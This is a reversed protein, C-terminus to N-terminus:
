LIRRRSITTVVAHSAAAATATTAKVQLYTGAAIVIGNGSAAIYAYGSSDVSFQQSQVQGDVVLQFVMSSQPLDGEVAIEVFEVIRDYNPRKSKGRIMGDLISGPFYVTATEYNMDARKQDNTAIQAYAESPQAGPLFTETGDRLQSM